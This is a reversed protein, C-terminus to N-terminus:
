EIAVRGNIRLQNWASRLTADQMTCGQVEFGEGWSERGTERNMHLLHEWAQKLQPAWILQQFRDKLKTWTKRGCPPIETGEEVVNFAFVAKGNPFGEEV